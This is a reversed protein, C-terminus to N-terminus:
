AGLSQGFVQAPEDATFRNLSPRQACGVLDPSPAAALRCQGRRQDQQIERQREAQAAHEPLPVAGPLFCEDGSLVKIGSIDAGYLSSELLIVPPLREIQQVSLNGFRAFRVQAAELPTIQPLLALTIFQKAQRSM